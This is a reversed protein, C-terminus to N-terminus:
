NYFNNIFYSVNTIFIFIIILILGGDAAIATINKTGKESLEFISNEPLGSLGFGGFMITSNDSIDALAEKVSKFVKSSTM